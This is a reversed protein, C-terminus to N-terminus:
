GNKLFWNEKEFGSVKIYNNVGNFTISLSKGGELWDIPFDIFNM